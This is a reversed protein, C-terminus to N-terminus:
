IQKVGLAQRLEDAVKAPDAIPKESGSRLEALQAKLAALEAKADALAKEAVTDRELLEDKRDESRTKLQLEMKKREGDTISAACRVFELADKVNGRMALDGGLAVFAAAVDKPANKVASLEGIEAKAQIASKLRYSSENERMYALWDYFATKSPRSPLAASFEAMMWDLVSAVSFGKLSELYIDWKQKETLRAAWSDSRPKSETKKRSM